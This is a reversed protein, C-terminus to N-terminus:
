QRVNFNEEANHVNTYILPIIRITSNKSWMTSHMHGSFCLSLTKKTAGDHTKLAFEQTRIEDWHSLHVLDPMSCLCEYGLKWHATILNYYLIIIFTFFTVFKWVALSLSSSCISSILLLYILAQNQYIITFPVSSHLVTQDKFFKWEM